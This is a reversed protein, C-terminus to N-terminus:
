VVETWGCGQCNRVKQRGLDELHWPGWNSACHCSEGHTLRYMLRGWQNLLYLIVAPDRRTRRPYSGREHREGGIRVPWCWM